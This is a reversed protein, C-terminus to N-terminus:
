FLTKVSKMPLFLRGRDPLKIFGYQLYFAEAKSNLADVIVAVSGVQESIAYARHLADILLLEGLGQGQDHRDIALRGLLTTPLSEYRPLKKRFDEPVLDAPISDSSLTYYGKVRGEADATIFVGAARSKVHQSALKQIFTDLSEEGCSFASKKHGANLIETIFHM